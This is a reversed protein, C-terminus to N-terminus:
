IPVGEMGCANGASLARPMVDTNRAPHARLRDAGIKGRHLMVRLM